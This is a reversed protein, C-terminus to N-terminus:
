AGGASFMDGVLSGLREIGHALDDSWPNGSNLRM